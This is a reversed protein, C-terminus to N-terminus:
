SVPCGPQSLGALFYEISRLVLGHDDAPGLALRLLSSGDESVLCAIGDPDVEILVSGRLPKFQCKLAGSETLDARIASPSFVIHNRLKAAQAESKKM